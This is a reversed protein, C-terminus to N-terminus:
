DRLGRDKIAKRIEVWQGMDDIVRISSIGTNAASARLTDSSVKRFDPMGLYKGGILAAGGPRLVGYIARMKKEREGWILVPGLGAVIDFSETGFPWDDLTAVKCTIRESFGAEDIRREAEEAAEKSAYAATIRLDTAEVFGQQLTQVLGSDNPCILLCDGETIAYDAIFRNALMHPGLQSRRAARPADPGIIKVWQGRADIVQAGAIGSDAVIKRLKETTIKHEHPTYLYRGGLFAVGSPKLVRDVEKLCKGIDPIFTLTGRSVIVDAYNDEFPLDQADGAVFRIRDQFGAEGIRKDFLPKMEADIDLGIITLASRKALEIDLVGTGCGIDICIGERIGGCEGMMRAATLPYTHKVRNKAVWDIAEAHSMGGVITFGATSESWLRHGTPGGLFRLLEGAQPHTGVVAAWVPEGSPHKWAVKKAGNLSSVPAKEDKKTAMCAVVDCRAQNKTVLAEVEAFPLFTLLVENGSRRSYEKVIARIPEELRSDALLRCSGHRAGASADGGQQGQGCVPCLALLWCVAQVVLFRSGGNAKAPSTVMAKEKRGVTKQRGCHQEVVM